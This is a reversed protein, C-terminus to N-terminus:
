KLLTYWYNTKSKIWSISVSSRDTFSIFGNHSISMFRLVSLDCRPSLGKHHRRHGLSDAAADESVFARRSSPRLLTRRLGFSGVAFPRTPALPCNYKLVSQIGRAAHSTNYPRLHECVAYLRNTFRRRDVPSAAASCWRRWSFRWRRSPIPPLCRDSAADLFCHFFIEKLCYWIILLLGDQQLPM